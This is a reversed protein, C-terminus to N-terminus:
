GSNRACIWEKTIEEPEYLCERDPVGYGGCKALVWLMCHLLRGFFPVGVWYTHSWIEVGLFVGFPM